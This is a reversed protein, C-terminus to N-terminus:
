KRPEESGPGFPPILGLQQFMSLRDFVELVEAEKGEEFRSIALIKGFCTKGTPPIGMMPGTFTGRFSGVATVKNGEAVMDEVTIHLDPFATRYMTLFQRFGERGKFETGETGHYVWNPAILEEAVELNGRNFAEAFIRTLVTKNGDTSM